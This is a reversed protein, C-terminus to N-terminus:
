AAKRNEKEQIQAREPNLYVTDELTWNRIDASWRQPQRLRAALYAAQWFQAGKSLVHALTSLAKLSFHIIAWRDIASTSIRFCNCNTSNAIRHRKFYVNSSKRSIIM